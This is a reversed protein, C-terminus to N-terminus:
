RGPHWSKTIGSLSGHVIAPPEAMWCEINAGQDALFVANVLWDIGLEGDQPRAGLYELATQVMARNMMYACSTNTVAQRYRILHPHEGVPGMALYDIGLDRSELGGALNVYRPHHTPRAAVADIVADTRETLVSDTELVLLEDEASTAFERWARVHKATVAKEVQRIHWAKRLASRSGRIKVFFLARGALIWGRARPHGLYRAWNGELSAQRTRWRVLEPMDPAQPFPSQEHVESVSTTRDKLAQIVYRAPAEELDGNHIATVRLTATSM